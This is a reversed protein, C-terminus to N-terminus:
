QAATARRYRRGFFGFLVALVVAVLAIAFWTLAGGQSHRNSTTTAVEPLGYATLTFEGPATPGAQVRDIELVDYREFRGAYQTVKHPLRIGNVREGYEIEVFGHGHAGAGADDLRYTHRQIAWSDDPCVVISGLMRQPANGRKKTQSKELRREMFGKGDYTYDIQLFAKKSDDTQSINVIHFGSDRIVLRLLDDSFSFPAHLLRIQAKIARAIEPDTGNEFKRLVPLSRGKQWQLSFSYTPGVCQLLHAFGETPPQVPIYSGKGEDFDSAELRELEMKECPDSMWFSIRDRRVVAKPQSTDYRPAATPQRKEKEASSSKTQREIIEPYRYDTLTASGSLQACFAELREMAPPLERQVRDRLAAEDGRCANSFGTAGVISVSLLLRLLIRVAPYASTTVMATPFSPGSGQSIVSGTARWPCPSIEGCRPM